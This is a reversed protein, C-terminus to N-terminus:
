KHLARKVSLNYTVDLVFGASPNEAHIHLTHAGPKLSEIQAYYGDDIAPSFIGGPVGGASECPADFINDEPLAAAFVKSQARKNRVPKGDLEVLLNLSGDIFPAAGARLDAVSINVPGQGCVNPSNLNVSNVVPFFLRVNDPVTCNRIIPAGGGFLGALFWTSGHQGVMCNVGNTDLLPNQSTPISLAWQWWRATLASLSDSEAAVPTVQLGLSIVVAAALLKAKYKM